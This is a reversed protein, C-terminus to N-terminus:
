SKFSIMYNPRSFNGKVSHNCSENCVFGKNDDREENCEFVRKTCKHTCVLGRIIVSTIANLVRSSGVQSQM